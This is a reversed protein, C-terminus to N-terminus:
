MGLDPNLGLCHHSVVLGDSCAGKHIPREIYTVPQTRKGEANLPSGIALKVKRVFNDEGCTRDEVRALQRQNGQLDENKLLVIDGIQINCCPDSWKQLCVGTGRGECVASNVNKAREINLPASFFQFHQPM